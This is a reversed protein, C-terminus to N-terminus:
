VISHLTDNWYVGMGGGQLFNSTILGRRGACVLLFRIDNPPSTM